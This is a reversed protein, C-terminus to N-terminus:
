YLMIEMQFMVILKMKIKTKKLTMKIIMKITKKIIMMTKMKMMKINDIKMKIISNKIIM